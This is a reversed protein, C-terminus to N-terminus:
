GGPRSLGLDVRQALRPKIVIFLLSDGKNKKLEAEKIKKKGNGENKKREIQYKTKKIEDKFKKVIM